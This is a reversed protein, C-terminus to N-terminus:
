NAKGEPKARLLMAADIAQRLDAAATPLCRIHATTVVNRLTGGKGDPVIINAALEIQIAGHNFGFALVGDFYIFPAQESALATPGISPPKKPKDPRDAM